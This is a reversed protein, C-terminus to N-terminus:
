VDGEILTSLSSPKGTTLSSRYHQNTATLPGYGNTSKESTSPPAPPFQTSRRRISDYSQSLDVPDSVQREIIAQPNTQEEPQQHRKRKLQKFDKTYFAHWLQNIM